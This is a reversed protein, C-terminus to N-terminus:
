AWTLGYNLLQVNAPLVAKLRIKKDTAKTFYFLTEPTISQWTAGDNCSIYYEGLCENGNSQVEVMLVAKSPIADAQEQTTIITYPETGSAKLLGNTADFTYGSSKSTDIGSLDLLDDFIMNQMKYKMTKAVSNLKAHAKMINITDNIILQNAQKTVGQLSNDLADIREKVHPYPGTVGSGLTKETKTKEKGAKSTIGLSIVDM